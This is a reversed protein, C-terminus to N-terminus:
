IKWKGKYANRRRSDTHRVTHSRRCGGVDGAWVKCSLTDSTTNIVILRENMWFDGWGEPKVRKGGKLCCRTCNRKKWNINFFDSHKETQYKYGIIPFNATQRVLVVMLHICTVPQFRPQFASMINRLKEASVLSEMLICGRIIELSTQIDHQEEIGWQLYKIAIYILMKVTIKSQTALGSQKLAYVWM